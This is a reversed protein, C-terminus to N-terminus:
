FGFFYDRAEHLAQSIAERDNNRSICISHAHEKDVISADVPATGGRKLESPQRHDYHGFWDHYVTRAVLAGHFLMNCWQLGGGQGGIPGLPFHITANSSLFAAWWAFTSPSIVMTRASALFQFDTEVDTSRSHVKANFRRQLYTSIPHNQAIPPDGVIWVRSYNGAQLVRDFYISPPIGFTRYKSGVIRNFDEDSLRTTSASLNMMDRSLADRAAGQDHAFDRLYVVADNPGPYQKLISKRQFMYQLLDRQKEYQRIWFASQFYGNKGLPLGDFNDQKPNKACGNMRCGTVTSKCTWGHALLPEMCPYSSPGRIKVLEPSDMKVKLHMSLNHARVIGAALSFLKNGYRGTNSHVNVVGACKDIRKLWRSWDGGCDVHLLTHVATPPTPSLTRPNCRSASLLLFTMM